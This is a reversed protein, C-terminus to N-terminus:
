AEFDHRAAVACGYNAKYCTCTEPCIVCRQLFHTWCCIASSTELVCRASLAGRATQIQTACCPHTLDMCCTLPTCSQPCCASHARLSSRQAEPKRQSFPLTRSLTSWLSSTRCHRCVPHFDRLWTCKLGEFHDNFLLMSSLATCSHGCVMGSTCKECFRQWAPCLSAQFLQV